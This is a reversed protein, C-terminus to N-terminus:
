VPLTIYENLSQEELVIHVAADNHGARGMDDSEQHKAALTVTQMDVKWIGFVSAQILLFEVSPRILVSPDNVVIADCAYIDDYQEVTLGSM